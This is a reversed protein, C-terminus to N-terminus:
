DEFPRLIEIETEDSQRRGTYKFKSTGAWNSQSSPIVRRRGSLINELGHVHPDLQFSRTMWINNLVRRPRAFEASEKKRIVSWTKESCKRLKAREQRM